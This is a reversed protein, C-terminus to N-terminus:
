KSRTPPDPIRNLIQELEKFSPAFEVLEPLKKHLANWVYYMRSYVKKKMMPTLNVYFGDHVFVDSFLYFTVNVNPNKIM